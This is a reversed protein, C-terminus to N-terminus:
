VSECLGRKEVLLEILNRHDLRLDVQNDRAMLEEVAWRTPELPKDKTVNDIITFALMVDWDKVSEILNTM